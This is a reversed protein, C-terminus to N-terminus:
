HSEQAIERVPEVPRCQYLLFAVTLADIITEGPTRGPSREVQVPPLAEGDDTFIIAIATETAQVYRGFHKVRIHPSPTFM